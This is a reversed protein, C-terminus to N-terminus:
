VETDAKLIKFIVGSSSVVRTRLANEQTEDFIPDYDLVSYSYSASESYSGPSKRTVNFLRRFSGDLFFGVDGKEISGTEKSPEPYWMPHGYGEGLESAYIDWVPTPTM